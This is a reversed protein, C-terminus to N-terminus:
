QFGISNPFLSKQKVPKDKNVLTWIQQEVLIQPHKTSDRSKCDLIGRHIICWTYWIFNSNATPKKNSEELCWVCINLKHKQQHKKHRKHLKFHSAKVQILRWEYGKVNEKKVCIRVHSTKFSEESKNLATVFHTDWYSMM